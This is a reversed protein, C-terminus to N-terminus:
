YIHSTINNILFNVILFFILEASIIANAIDTFNDTRTMEEKYLLIFLKQSEGHVATKVFLLPIRLSFFKEFFRHKM